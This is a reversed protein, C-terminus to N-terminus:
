SGWLTEETLHVKRGFFLRATKAFSDTYDSVVFRHKPEAIPADAISGWEAELQSALLQASDMLEVRDGLIAAIESRILPYHTCGLVLAEIGKLKRNSLYSKLISTSINNNFFGEEIMPALLPTALMRVDCEPAVAAIGKAYAATRVTAKTGIVGVKGNPYRQGIQDVVPDIVNYVPVRGDVFEEVVRSAISSATNCAIVIAKAKHKLLYHAIRISYYRIADESKDGYPMHATDGFYLLPVGPLRDRIAAAVTLGGIGSDFIGIPGGAEKSHTQARPTSM